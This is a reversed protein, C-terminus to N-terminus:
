PYLISIKLKICVMSTKAMIVTRNYETATLINSRPLLWDVLVM